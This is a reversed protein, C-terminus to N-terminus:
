LLLFLLCSFPLADLQFLLLLMLLFQALCMWWWSKWLRHSILTMKLLLILLSIAMCSHIVSIPFDALSALLQPYAYVRSCSRESQAHRGRGTGRM